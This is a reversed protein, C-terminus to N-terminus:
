PSQRDLARSFERFELEEYMAFVIQKFTTSPKGKLYGVVTNTALEAAKELPFRYAGTSISCFAISAVRKAEAAELCSRYSSVLLDAEGRRGDQWIPGPTHVIFRQKLAFGPTVVASGTRAGNPAVRELERQLEKGAARHVAGDVGGGGRMATNAANVIADVNQDLVSGRVVSVTTYNIKLV